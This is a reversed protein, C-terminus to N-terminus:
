EPIEQRLQYEKSVKDLVFYPTVSPLLPRLNSKLFVPIGAKDCAEAIEEVWEVKPDYKTGYGTLRGVIIWNFDRNYSPIIIQELLPELSMFKIKAEIGSLLSAGIDYDLQNTATVGVWWNLPYPSDKPLNQPQKTLLLFTHQLYEQTKERIAERWEDSIWNGWYDNTSCLFVRKPKKPLKDFVSLDLRLTPDQKFRRAIGRKGSYYCYWCGGQCLGKIPNLTIDCWGISSKISM